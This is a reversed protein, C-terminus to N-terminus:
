HTPNYPPETSVSPHGLFVFFILGPQRSAGGAFAKGPHRKGRNNPDGEKLDEARECSNAWTVPICGPTATRTNKECVILFVARRTWNDNSQVQLRFEVFRDGGKTDAITRLFTQGDFPFRASRPM